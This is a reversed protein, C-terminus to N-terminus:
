VWLCLCVFHISVITLVTFDLSLLINFYFYLMTWRYLLDLYDSLYFPMNSLYSTNLMWNCFDVKYIFSVLHFFIIFLIYILTHCKTKTKNEVQSLFMFCLLFFFFCCLCKYKFATRSYMTSQFVVGSINLILIHTWPFLEWFFCQFVSM